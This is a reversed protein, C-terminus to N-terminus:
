ALGLGSGSKLAAQQRFAPARCEFLPRDARMLALELAAARRQRQFGTSLVDRCHAETVPQGCLYRQPDAFRAAHAQWWRAILEPAPWPLDEDPDLAVDEDEPNENPGSEVGEPRDTELDDYALDAGTIMSFAEGALRALEPTQMREILWPVYSADGHVGIATILLRLWAPAASLDRFWAQAAPSTLLRPALQLAPAQWPSALDAAITFLQALGQGRDGLLVAASAASFRCGPDDDTLHEHVAERLDNRGLEGAAKLARSRLGPEPDALAAQLRPGPDVRHLACATLGLRRRFPDDSDLLEKVTGHLHAREVWGLASFLGPAAEPMRAAFDIVLDIRAWARSELALVSAAFLEGPEEFKLQESALQWGAESAVRLGDVHAEVRNDLKALDKLRYHPARVAAARLLWLFAAEEAHQGVIDDRLISRM